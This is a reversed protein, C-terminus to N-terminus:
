DVEDNIGDDEEDGNDDGAAGEVVDNDAFFFLRFRFARRERTTTLWSPTITEAGM